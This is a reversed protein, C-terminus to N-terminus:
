VRVYTGTDLELVYTTLIRILGLVVVPELEGMSQVRFARIEASLPDTPQSQSSFTRQRQGGEAAQTSDETRSTGTGNDDNDDDDDSDDYISGQVVSSVGKAKNAKTNSDGAAASDFPGGERGQEDDDDDDDYFGVGLANRDRDDLLLMCAESLFHSMGMTLWDFSTSTGCGQTEAQRQGMSVADLQSLLPLVRVTHPTQEEWQEMRVQAITERMLEEAYVTIVVKLKALLLFSLDGLGLTQFGYPSFDRLVTSQEFAIDICQSTLTLPGVYMASNFYVTGGGNSTASVISTPSCPSLPRNSSSSNNNNNNNNNNYSDSFPSSAGGEGGGGGGRTSVTVPSLPSVFAAGNGGGGSVQLAASQDDEAFNVSINVSVSSAPPLADREDREDREDRTDRTNRFGQAPSSLTNISSGTRARQRAAASLPLRPKLHM